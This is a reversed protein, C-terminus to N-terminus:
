NEYIMSGDWEPRRGESVEKIIFYLDKLYRDLNFYKKATEKGRQGIEVADRYHFNILQYIAESYSLPNDPLIFGNVGDEIFKDADHYPSTLVCCGSLMAETRARPMPSDFMPNVYLLSKGIMRRYDSWDQAIVDVTIQNLFM